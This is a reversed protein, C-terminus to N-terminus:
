YDEITKEANTVVVMAQLPRSSGMGTEYEFLWNHPFPSLRTTGRAVSITLDDDVRDPPQLM